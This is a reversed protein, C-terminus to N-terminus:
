VFGNWCLTGENLSFPFSPLHYLDVHLCAHGLRELNGRMPNEEGVLQSELRALFCTADSDKCRSCRCTPSINWAPWSTRTFRAPKCASPTINWAATVSATPWITLCVESCGSLYRTFSRNEKRPTLSTSTGASRM